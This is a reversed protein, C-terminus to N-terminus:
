KGGGGSGGDGGGGGDSGADSTGDSGGGHDAAGAIIIPAAYLASDDGRADNARRKADELLPANMRWLILTLLATLAISVLAAAIIWVPMRECLM